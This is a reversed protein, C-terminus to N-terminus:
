IGLTIVLEGNKVVVNKLVLKAAAQRVDTYSLTYIPRERYYEGLAWTLAKNAIEAEGAPMGQVAVHEIAPDTLFLQGTASDYRIGGSVDIAGGLPVSVDERYLNLTIDLGGHVRETGDILTVRPNDLVIVFIFLYTKRVPMAANLRDQLDAESFRFVYEKDSFYFYAGIALAM